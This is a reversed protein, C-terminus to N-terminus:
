KKKPSKSKVTKSIKSSKEEKNVKSSSKISSKNKISAAPLDNKSKKDALYPTVELNTGESMYRGRVDQEVFIYKEKVLADNPGIGRPYKDKGYPGASYPTREMLFPYSQSQDKPIYIVTYLKVGDRMTITTDMKTYNEKVFNSQSKAAVSLLLSCTIAPFLKKM